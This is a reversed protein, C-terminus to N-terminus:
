TGFNRHSAIVNVFYHRKVSKVTVTNGRWSCLAGAARHVELHAPFTRIRSGGSAMYQM